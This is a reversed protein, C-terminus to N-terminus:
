AILKDPITKLAAKQFFVLSHKLSCYESIASFLHDLNIFQFKWAYITCVAM